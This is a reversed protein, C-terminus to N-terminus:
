PDQIPKSQPGNAPTKPKEESDVSFLMYHDFSHRRYYHHRNLEFYIEVNQPLWLDVNKQQFRVPGYEAIQHQVTLHPLPSALDSEIHVIDFNNATIWARGKLRMAHRESGVVYDAFRNTKDERQRFHMIWTAQGKWEGLGECAMQFDERLEPHFILALAMFGITVIHDPLDPLGNRLTRYEDIGLFGPQADAISAVYDFKRTEKTLPNGAKDLQEHLMDEVAAFRTISDALRKVRQGSEDIVQQYPCTIGSAVSPKVDDVGPPGWASPPLLPPSAALALDTPTNTEESGNSGSDRKEIEAILAQVQPVTPNSPNAQVFTKLAQIGEQGRGTNALAQGRVLEAVTGQGKGEDLAVQAQQLAKEYDMQKLYADALFNHAVWYESNAAVAGELTKQADEYHQRQLQVRGLLTLTQVKRPDLSAARGLYSEATELDKLQWFLYGYLFNIQASSPAFKYVKELHKQAARLNGSRLEILAHKADKRASGTILDDSARLDVAMPDRQLVVELHLVQVTATVHVEKHETLYGVASVEVDYDGFDLEHFTTESESTTTQWGTLDRKRDHLKVVAQRDLPAKSDELVTVRLSQYLSYDKQVDNMRLGINGGPSPLGQGSAVPIWLILQGFLLGVLVRRSYVLRPPQTHRLMM